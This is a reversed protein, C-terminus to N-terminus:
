EKIINFFYNLKVDTNIVRTTLEITNEEALICRKLNASIKIKNEEINARYAQLLVIHSTCANLNM